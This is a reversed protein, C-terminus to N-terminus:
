TKLLLGSYAFSLKYTFICSYLITTFIPLYIFIGGKTVDQGGALNCISAVDRFFVFVWNFHKMKEEYKLITIM